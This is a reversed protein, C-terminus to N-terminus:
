QKTAVFRFAVSRSDTATGDMTRGDASVTATATLRIGTASQLGSTTWQSGSVDGSLTVPGATLSAGTLTGTVTGGTQTMAANLSLPTGVPVVSGGTVTGAIAWSGQLDAPIGINVTATGTRGYRDTATLTIVQAGRSLTSMALTPGTGLVGDRDSSWSLASGPLTGDEADTASGSLPVAEGQRYLAGPAPSAIQAVPAAGGGGPASTDNSCAALSAIVLGALLLTFRSM